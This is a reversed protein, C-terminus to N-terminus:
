PEINEKLKQHHVIVDTTLAMAAGSVATELAKNLMVVSDWVGAATMDVLKHSLADFGHGPPLDKVKEVVIDPQAGANYAIARMPEELARSLIMYAAAEAENAAPLEALAAQANLLAAGGGAVVGGIVANRVSTVAREAIAHRTDIESETYGGIKLIATGGSLRGLRQRLMRKPHGEEALSLLARLHAMHRRVQRPDGKGGTLGFLSDTAWARRAYGLDQAQFDALGTTAASYFIRGGTLASLDEMAEVHSVEGLRPTRVAMTQITKAENNQVLLGVSRDSMEAAVIVLKKVGAKICEDLAPILQEPEKLKLDTILVAADEFTTRREAPETIFHRSFWGSLHWYTGEIYERDLGPKNWKEIVFLGDPGIIDFIEGILGALESDEQLMGRAVGAIRDKGTLPTAERQLKQQVVALGKQLGTRLQMANHGLRVVSRVGENFIAQYMVAMTAAGDGAERQMRWLSQRILMAGVDSGRPRIQIIRRAITAADDLLEPRDIRRQAEMMVTRALPGLTPRVANAIT